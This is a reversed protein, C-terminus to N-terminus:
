KWGFETCRVVSVNMGFVNVCRQLVCQKCWLLTSLSVVIRADGHHPRPWHCYSLWIVGSNMVHRVVHLCYLLHLVVVSVNRKKINVM